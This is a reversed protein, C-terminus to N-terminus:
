CLKDLNLDSLDDTNVTTTTVIDTNNLIYFPIFPMTGM